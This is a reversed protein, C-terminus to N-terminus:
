IVRPSLPRGLPAAPGLCAPSPGSIGPPPTKEDDPNDAQAAAQTLARALRRASKPDLSFKVTESHLYISLHHDNETRGPVNVTYVQMSDPRYTNHQTRWAMGIKDIKTRTTPAPTTHRPGPKPTNTSNM